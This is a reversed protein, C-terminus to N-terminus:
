MKIIIERIETPVTNFTGCDETLLRKNIMNIVVENKIIKECINIIGVKCDVFMYVECLDIEDEYGKLCEITKCSDILRTAMVM